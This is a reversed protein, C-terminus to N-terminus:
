PSQDDDDEAPMPEGNPLPLDPAPEPAKRKFTAAIMEYLDPREASLDNLFESVAKEKFWEDDPRVAQGDADTKVPSVGDLGHLRVLDGKIRRSTEIGGLWDRYSITPATGAPPAKAGTIVAPEFSLVSQLVLSDLMEFQHRKEWKLLLTNAAAWEANAKFHNEISKRVRKEPVGLMKGLEGTKMLNRPDDWLSRIGRDRLDDLVTRRAQELDATESTGVTHLTAEDDGEDGVPDLPHLGAGTQVIPVAPM